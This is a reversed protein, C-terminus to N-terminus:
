YESINYNDDLINGNGECYPCIKIKYKSSDKSKIYEEKSILIQDLDDEKYYLIGSGNCKPCTHYKENWPADRSDYDGSVYDNFM